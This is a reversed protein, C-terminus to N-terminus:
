TSVAGMEPNAGIGERVFDNIAARIEEESAMGPPFIWDKFMVCALVAAFSVRVMLKPDVKAPGTLRSTMMAAGRDFYASLSSIASHAQTAEPDYTQAVVLSTLMKANDRVFAQLTDIYLATSQRVAEVNDDLIHSAFFNSLQQDLPKFVAERFLEAKSGFYRFLQAETVEARRAIAATTAGAYGNQRFEEGAAEVIRNMLDEPSRRKRRGPAPSEDTAPKTKQLASGKVARDIEPAAVLSFGGFRQPSRLAKESAATTPRSM